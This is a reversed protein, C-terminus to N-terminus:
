LMHEFILQSAHASLSYPIYVTECCIIYRCAIFTSTRVPISAALIDPLAKPEVSFRKPETNSTLNLEQLLLAGEQKSTLQEQPPKGGFLNEKWSNSILGEVCTPVVFLWAFLFILQQQKGQRMNKLFNKTRYM